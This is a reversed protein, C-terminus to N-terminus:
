GPSPISTDGPGSHFSKDLRHSAPNKRVADRAIVPKKRVVHSQDGISFFNTGAIDPSYAHAEM